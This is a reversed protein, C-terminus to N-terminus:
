KRRKKNDRQQPSHDGVMMEELISDFDDSVASTIQPMNFCSSKVQLWRLVEQESSNYWMLGFETNNSRQPSFEEHFWQVLSVVQEALMMAHQCVQLMAYSFVQHMFQDPTISDNNSVVTVEDSAKHRILAIARHQPQQPPAQFVSLLPPATVKQKEDHIARCKTIFEKCATQLEGSRINIPFSTKLFREQMYRLTKEAYEQLLEFFELRYNDKDIYKEKITVTTETLAVEYFKDYNKYRFVSEYVLYLYM